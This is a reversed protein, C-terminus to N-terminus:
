RNEERATRLSGRKIWAAIYEAVAGVDDPRYIPKDTRLPVDSVYAMCTEPDCVPAASVAARVVEIKPYRSYKFGELLLLDASPFASLLAAESCSSRCVVSVKEGDFVATAMAGARWFRSTDTGPVDPVFRHGDHKIVAVAFGRSGLLPVLREILTTKGSNKIGSIALAPTRTNM